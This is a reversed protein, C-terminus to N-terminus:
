LTMPTCGGALPVVVVEEMAGTSESYKTGLQEAMRGEVAIGDLFVTTYRIM